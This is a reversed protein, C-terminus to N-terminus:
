NGPKESIMVRNTPPWAIPHGAGDKLEVKSAYRNAVVWPSTDYRAGKTPHAQSEMARFGVESLVSKWDAFSWFCFAENM